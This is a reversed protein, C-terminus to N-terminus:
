VRHDTRPTPQASIFAARAAISHAVPSATANGNATTVVCLHCERRHQYDLPDWGVGGM